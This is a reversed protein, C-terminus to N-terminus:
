IEMGWVQKASARIIRRTEDWNVLSLAEEPTVWECDVVDSAAKAEGGRWHASFDVIVYHFGAGIADVADILEGTEIALGTEEMVERALAARLTEGPEVAGGPLSWEGLRPEKGRRVLLLATKGRWVAAGVAIRPGMGATMSEM